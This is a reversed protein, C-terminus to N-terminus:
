NLFKSANFVLILHSLVLARSCDPASCVKVGNCPAMRYFVEEDIGNINMTVMRDPNLKGKSLQIDDWLFHPKSAVYQPLKSVDKSYLLMSSQGSVSVGPFQYQEKTIIEQWNDHSKMLMKVVSLPNSGHGVRKKRDVENEKVSNGVSTSCRFEAAQNPIPPLQVEKNNAVTGRGEQTVEYYSFVGAQRGQFTGCDVKRVLYGAVSCQRAFQRWWELSLNPPSKGYAVSSSLNPLKKIWAEKSGRIYQALKKEGKTGIEDIANVM